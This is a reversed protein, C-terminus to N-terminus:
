CKCWWWYDNHNQELVMEEKAKINKLPIIVTFVTGSSSSEVSIEGSLDNCLNKIHCLGIGTSAEGTVLNFKTTFGANFILPLIDDSIGGGNDSVKFIVFKEDCDANINIIGNADCADIANSILNNLIIFINYYKSIKINCNCNFQLKIDKKDAKIVRQANNKIISFVNEITLQTESSNNDILFDFGKIVRYYDKRIEHVDKAISLATQKENQPLVESNYLNYSKTMVDEIDLSSKKLYFMESYVNSVIEFLKTYKEAQLKNENIIKKFQVSSWIFTSILTRIVASILLITILSYNIKNSILGEILNAFFESLFIIAFLLLNNDKVKKSVFIKLFASFCIYFIFASINFIFAYYFNEYYFIATATRLFITLAGVLTGLIVTNIQPNFLFTLTFIIVGLSLRFKNQVGTPFFYIFNSVSILLAYIFCKKYDKIKTM